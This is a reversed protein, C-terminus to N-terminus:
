NNLSNPMYNVVEDIQDKTYFFYLNDKYCEIAEKITPAVSTKALRQLLTKIQKDIIMEREKTPDIKEFPNKISNFYLASLGSFKPAGLVM